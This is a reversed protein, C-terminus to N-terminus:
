PTWGESIKEEILPINPCGETVNHFCLGRELLANDIANNFNQEGRSMYFGVDIGTIDWCHTVPNNKDGNWLCFSHRQTDDSIFITIDFVNEDADYLNGAPTLYFAYSNFTVLLIFLYLM